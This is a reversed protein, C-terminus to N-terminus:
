QDNDKRKFDGRKWAEIFQAWAFPNLLNSLNNTRLQGAYYLQNARQQNQWKFNLSGNMPMAKAKEALLEPNLNKRAIELDDDPIKLALFAEKFQEPTPWPYVNVTELEITDSTMSHILSYRNGVLSDPVYFESDRYGISSFVLTDGKQAVFSFYGYYDSTTGRNTHKVLITAFPVPMLSDSTVVVGSFQILDDNEFNEQASAPVLSLFIALLFFILNKLQM